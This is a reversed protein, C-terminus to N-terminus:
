SAFEAGELLFDGQAVPVATGSVVIREPREGSGWATAVMTSPRGMEVGQRIEIRDGYAIRGTRALHVALPGAASGTAADETVGYAPSFMRARWQTGEGAFCFASMDPLTALVRLDPKLSSLQEIDRVPFLVHRPGNRYAFVTPEAPRVGLGEALVEAHEYLEWVPIPQAMSASISGASGREFTFDVNGVLTEMVLSSRDSQHALAIATGLTPHGAFPLECTPTFIRVRVDGTGEAPLVFTTESLHTEVAIAQMQASSLGSAELLVAVPNGELPTGTFVDMIVYRYM